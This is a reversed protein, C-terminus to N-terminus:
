IARMLFKSKISFGTSRLEENKRVIAKDVSKKSRSNTRSYGRVKQREGDDRLMIEVEHRSIKGDKDLDM